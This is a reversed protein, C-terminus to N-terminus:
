NFILSDHWVKDFVKSIDLFVDRVDVTPNNDCVTQIGHMISLLHAICSDGLLFGSQFPRLIKNSLFHIFLSNYIVREFIKGFIPLLSIRRYNKMLTKDEKKHIPVVVNAKKGYKQSYETKLSEEFIIKLPRTVSESCIKIM